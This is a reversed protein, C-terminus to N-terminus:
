PRDERAAKIAAAHRSVWCDCKGGVRRMCYEEHNAVRLAARAAALEETLQAVMAVTETRREGCEALKESLREVEELARNDCWKMWAPVYNDDRGIEKGVLAARAEELSRMITQMQVRLTKVQENRQGLEDVAEALQSQCEALEERLRQMEEVVAKTDM